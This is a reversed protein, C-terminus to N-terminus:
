AADQHASGDPRVALHGCSSCPHLGAAQAEGLVMLEARATNLWGCLISGHYVRLNASNYNRVYVAPDRMWSVIERMKNSHREIEADLECKIGQLRSEPSPVSRKVWEAKRALTM